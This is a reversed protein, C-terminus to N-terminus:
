PASRGRPPDPPPAIFTVLAPLSTPPFICTSRLPKAPQLWLFYGHSQAGRLFADHRKPNTVTPRRQLPAAGRVRPLPTWPDREGYVVEVALGSGGGGDAAASTRAALEALQLEPLPGASYSLTDFVVDASGPLLLPSLLVKSPPPPM